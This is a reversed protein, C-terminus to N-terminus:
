TGLVHQKYLDAIKHFVTKIFLMKYRENNVGMYVIANKPYDGLDRHHYLDVLTQGRCIGQTEIRLNIKKYIDKSDCVSQDIAIMMAVLDHIICGILKFREWYVNRYQEAINNLFRGIEGGETKLFFFDNMTFLTKTTTDLGIMHIDVKTGLEYVLAAAEPDAWYNFEAVVTRNGKEVGGGMSWITKVKKMTEVDKEIAMAINTLPGLTVLEVEYPHTRVTDLIFDVASQNALLEKKGKLTVGGIGGDGHTNTNYKVSTEGQKMQLLSTPAGQYISCEKEMLTVLGLANNTCVSLQNNGAVVTIGLVDFGSHSLATIIAFADDIGPDTDIIIKRKKM